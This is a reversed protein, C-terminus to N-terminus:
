DGRRVEPHRVDALEARARVLVALQDSAIGVVPSDDTEALPDRAALDVRRQVAGDRRHIGISQAAPGAGQHAATLPEEAPRLDGGRQLGLILISSPGTMTPPPGDPSAAAISSRPSPM